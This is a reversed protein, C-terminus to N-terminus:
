KLFLFLLLLKAELKLNGSGGRSISLEVSDLFVLSENFYEVAELLSNEITGVGEVVVVVVLFAELYLKLDTLM